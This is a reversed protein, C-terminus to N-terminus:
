STRYISILNTYEQQMISKATEIAVPGANKKARDMFHQGPVKTKKIGRYSRLYAADKFVDPSGPKPNTMLKQAYGQLFANRMSITATNRGGMKRIKKLVEFHTHRGVVGPIRSVAVFGKEVLHITKSPIQPVAQKGRTMTQSVGRDAGVIVYSANKQRGTRYYVKLSKKTLGSKGYTGRENKKTKGKVPCLKKAEKLIVRGSAMLAKRYIKKASKPDFAMAIRDFARPLDPISVFISKGPGTWFSKNGYRGTSRGNEAWQMVASMGYVNSAWNPQYESLAATLRSM